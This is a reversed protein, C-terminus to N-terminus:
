VGRVIDSVIAAHNWQDYLFNHLIGVRGIGIRGRAMALPLLTRNRAQGNDQTYYTCDIHAPKGQHPYMM